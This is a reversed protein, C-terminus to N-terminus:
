MLSTVPDNPFYKEALMGLRFLQPEDANLFSFNSLEAM